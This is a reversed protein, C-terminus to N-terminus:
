RGRRSPAVPGRRAVRQADGAALHLQGAATAGLDTSCLEALVLQVDGLGLASASAGDLWDVSPTM